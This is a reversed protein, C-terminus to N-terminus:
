DIFSVLKSKENGFEDIFLCSLVGKKRPRLPFQFMPNKSVASSLEVAFITEGNFDCRLNKVINRPIIKGRGDHRYGSEMPHEVMVSISFADRNAETPVIKVYIKGFKNM